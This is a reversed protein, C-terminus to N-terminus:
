TPRITSSFVRDKAKKAEKDLKHLPHHNFAFVSTSCCRMHNGDLAGERWCSFCISNSHGFSNRCHLLGWSECFRRDEALRMRACGRFSCKSHRRLLQHQSFRYCSASM